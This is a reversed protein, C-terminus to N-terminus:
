MYSLSAIVDIKEILKSCIGHQFSLHTPLSHGFCVETFSLHIKKQFKKKEQSHGLCSSIGLGLILGKGSCRGQDSSLVLDKVWQM